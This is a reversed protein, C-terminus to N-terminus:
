TNLRHKAQARAPPGDTIKKIIQEAGLAWSRAPLSREMKLVECRRKIAHCSERKKEREVVGKEWSRPPNGPM